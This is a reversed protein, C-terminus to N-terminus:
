TGFYIIPNNYDTLNNTKSPDILNWIKYFKYNSDRINRILEIGERSLNASIIQNENYTNAKLSSSILM